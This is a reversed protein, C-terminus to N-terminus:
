QRSFSKPKFRQTSGNPDIPSIDIEQYPRGDYFFDVGIASSADTYPIQRLKKALAFVASDNPTEINSSASDINHLISQAEEKSRAVATFHLCRKLVECKKGQLAFLNYNAQPQGVSASYEILMLDAQLAGIKTDSYYGQMNISDGISAIWSGSTVNTAGSMIWGLNKFVSNTSIRVPTIKNATIAVEIEATDIPTAVIYFRHKGENLSARFRKWEGTKWNDWSPNEKTFKFLVSKDQSLIIPLAPSKGVWHFEVTGFADKQAENDRATTLITQDWTSMKSMGGCGSFIISALIATYAIQKM